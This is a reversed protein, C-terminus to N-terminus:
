RKAPPIYLSGDLILKFKKGLIHGLRLALHIKEEWSNTDNVENVIKFMEPSRRLFDQLRDKPRPLWTNSLRYYYRVFENIAHNILLLAANNDHLCDELDHIYMAIDYSIFNIDNKSLKNPGKKWLRKALSQLRQLDKQKNDKIIQGSAFMFVMVGRGGSADSKFEKKIAVVDNCFIELLHDDVKWSKRWRPKGKKLLVHFDWDANKSHKGLVRSGTLLIGENNKIAQLNNLISTPIDIKM